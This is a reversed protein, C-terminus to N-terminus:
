LAPKIAPEPLFELREVFLIGLLGVLGAMLILPQLGILGYLRAGGVGALIQGLNFVSMLIAFIAGEVQSHHTLIAATSMLPLMVLCGLVGGLLVIMFASFKNVIFLASLINICNLIITWRLIKKAPVKRLWRLYLASGIMAGFWALSALFGLFTEQFGLTEKMFFFFPMGFSSSLSAVLLIGIFCRLNRTKLL